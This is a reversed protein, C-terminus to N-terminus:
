SGGRRGGNDQPPNVAGDESDTILRNRLDIGLASVFSELFMKARGSNAHENDVSEALWVVGDVLQPYYAEPLVTIDDGLAYDDPVTVYEALVTVGTSPPPYLFYKRPNRPHRIFNVPDGSTEAMWGPSSRDLTQRDVETIANGGVTQFVEVLRVGGTPLSQLATDATTAIAGVTGFLDPRYVIMRKIVDNVFGLLVVDSFRYTATADNILQRVEAIVQAPTTM